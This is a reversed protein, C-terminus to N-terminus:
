WGIVKKENKEDRPCSNEAFEGKGGVLGVKVGRGGAAM